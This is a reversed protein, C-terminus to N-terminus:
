LPSANMVLSWGSLRAKPSFQKSNDSIVRPQVVAHLLRRSQHISGGDQGASWKSKKRLVPRM